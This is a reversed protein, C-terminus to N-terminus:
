LVIKTRRNGAQLIYAQSHPLDKLIIVNYNPTISRILQGILNYINLVVDTSPLFVTVTGTKDVVAILGNTKSKDELTRL